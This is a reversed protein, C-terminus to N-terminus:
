INGFLLIKVQRCYVSSCIAFETLYQRFEGNSDYVKYRLLVKDRYVKQIQVLKPLSVKKGEVRVVMAMEGEHQQLYAYLNAMCDQYFEKDYRNSDILERGGMSSSLADYLEIM